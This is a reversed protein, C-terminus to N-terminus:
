RRFLARVAAPSRYDLGFRPIDQAEGRRVFGDRAGFILPFLDAAVKVAAPTAKRYPWALATPVTGGLAAIVANAELLDKRLM